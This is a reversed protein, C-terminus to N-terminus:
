NEQEVVMTCAGLKCHLLSFTKECGTHLVAHRFSSGQSMEEAARGCMALFFVMILVGRTARPAAAPPTGGTGVVAAAASRLLWADPPSGEARPPDDEEPPRAEARPFPGDALGAAVVLGPEAAPPAEDVAPARAEAAVAPRAPEAGDAGKPRLAPALPAPPLEGPLEGDDDRPPERPPSESERWVDFADESERPM